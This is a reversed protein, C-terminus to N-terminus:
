ERIKYQYLLRSIIIDNHTFIKGDFVPKLCLENSIASEHWENESTAVYYYNQRILEIHNYPSTINSLKIGNEKTVGPALSWYIHQMDTNITESITIINESDGTLGTIVPTGPMNTPIGSAESSIDSEDDTSTYGWSFLRGGSGTGAYIRDLCLSTYIYDQGSLTNVIEIWADVNNWRLLKGSPYTGGLIKDSSCITLSYIITESGYQGAVEIWTDANNWKFLRGGPSTCGYLNNEFVTLHRIDTQGNLFGAKITWADVENWEYLKGNPATGAYLKNNFVELSLVSTQVGLQPAKQVWADVDNWEFLRGGNSTAGYLKNNFVKLCRIHIQGNLQPAKQVWADVNNWEFLLGNQYTGGYLKGNFVAMCDIYQQSNLQPAKQVWADVDNWVFLNANPATGGYIKGNFEIIKRIITESSLQPAEQAWTVEPTIIPPALSTAVYHYPQGPTLSTHEHPSTVGVIKTGNIKTVPSSGKWYINHSDAGVVNDWTATNKEVGATIVLNEPIKHIPSDSYESSDSGEEADKESVLRYYYTLGPNLGIHEHPSSIDSLKQNSDKDFGPSTDWYAHTKDARPDTTFTITNKYEGGVVSISTPPDLFPVGFNELSADSEGDINEATVEYCYVDDRTLGTHDYPSAIDTIKTGSSKVSPTIILNDLDISGGTLIEDIAFVMPTTISSAFSEFDLSGLNVWSGIYYDLYLTTGIRRIRFKTPISVPYDTDTYTVNSDKKFSGRTLHGTGGSTSCRYWLQCNNTGGSDKVGFYIRFGDPDDATYNSIDIIATFDGSLLAYDYTLTINADITDPIDIILKNGTITATESGDLKTISWDDLTDFHCNPCKDKKWYLNYSTAGSVNDWSVVNSVAGPTISFNTPASPIAM